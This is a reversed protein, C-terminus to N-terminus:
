EVRDKDLLTQGLDVQHGWIGVRMSAQDLAPFLQLFGSAHLAQLVTSDAALHLSVERVDRALPSYILTVNIQKESAMSKNQANSLPRWWITPLKTLCRASWNAWCPM